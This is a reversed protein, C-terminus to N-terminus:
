DHVIVDGATAQFPNIRFEVDRYIDYDFHLIRRLLQDALGSDVLLRYLKLAQDSPLTVIQDYYYLVTRAVERTIYYVDYYKRDRGIATRLIGIM